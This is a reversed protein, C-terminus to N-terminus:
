WVRQDEGNALLGMEDVAGMKESGIGRGSGEEGGGLGVVVVDGGVLGVVVADGGVEEEVVAGGVWWVRARGRGKVGCVVRWM